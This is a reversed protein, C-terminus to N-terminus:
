VIRTKINAMLSGIVSEYHKIIFGFYNNEASEYKTYKLEYPLKWSYDALDADPTANEPSSKYTSLLLGRLDEESIYGKAKLMEYAIWYRENKIATNKQIEPTCITHLSFIISKMILQSISRFSCHALMLEPIIIKNIKVQANESEYLVNHNGTNAMANYKIICSSNFMVKHASHPLTFDNIYKEFYNPLFVNNERKFSTPMFHVWFAAFVNDASNPLNELVERVNIDRGPFPVLFEDADLALIFDANKTNIAIRILDNIIVGNIKTVHNGIEFVTIMLGEQVLKDLIERTEDTSGDDGVLM